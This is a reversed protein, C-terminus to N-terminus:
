FAGRYGSMRLAIPLENALKQAFDTGDQAYVDGVNVTIGAGMGVMGQTKSIIQEGPEVYVLQHRPAVGGEDYVSRRGARVFMGTDATMSGYATSEAKMTNLEEKQKDMSKKFKLYVAGIAATMGIGYAIAFAPNPADMMSKLVTHFALAANAVQLIAMLGFLAQTWRDEATALMMGAGYAAMLSSAFLTAIDGAVKMTFQFKRIKEGYLETSLMGIEMEWKLTELASKLQKTSFIGNQTAYNVIDQVNAEQIGDMNKLKVMNRLKKLGVAHKMDLMIKHATKQANQSMTDNLKLMQGTMGGMMMSTFKMGIAFKLLFGNGATIIRFLGELLPVFKGMLDVIKNFQEQFAADSLVKTFATVSTTLAVALEPKISEFFTVFAKIMENVGEMVEPTRFVAMFTEKMVALQSNFSQLQVETVDTLTGSADNVAALMERYDDSAGVLLGFSRLARVTFVDTAQQLMEITLTENEFAAVLADINIKGDEIINFTHGMGELFRELEDTHQLIDLFMKNVSRASIGAELARNSLVAMISILQEYSIGTMNATSGAYAFAKQLDGIDLISRQTAVQMKDLVDQTDKYTKGFTEIAFVTMKSAEEFSIANAKSLMTMAALGDNIQAVTLGAKSLQVAGEAIIDGSVGFKAAAQNISAGLAYMEEKTLEGLARTHILSQNFQRTANFAIFAGAGLGIFAASMGILIKRSVAAGAQITGYLQLYTGELNKLQAVAAGTYARVSFSTGVNGAM